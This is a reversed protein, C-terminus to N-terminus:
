LKSETFFFDTTYERKKYELWHIVAGKGKEGIKKSTPPPPPHVCKIAISGPITIFATNQDITPMSNVKCVACM